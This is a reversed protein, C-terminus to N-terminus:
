ARSNARIVRAESGPQPSSPGVRPAAIAGRERAEARVSSSSPRLGGGRGAALSGSAATVAPCGRALARHVPARWSSASTSRAESHVGPPPYQLQTHRREFMAALSRSDLSRSHRCDPFEGRSWHVRDPCAEPCPASSHTSTPAHERAGRRRPDSSRLQCGHAFCPCSGLGATGPPRDPALTSWGLARNLCAPGLFNMTQLVQSHRAPEFQAIEGQRSVRMAARDASSRSAPRASAAPEALVPAPECRM